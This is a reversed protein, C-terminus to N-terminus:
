QVKHLHGRRKLSKLEDEIWVGTLDDLAEVIQHEDGMKTCVMDGPGVEYENGESLVRARGDVIVWYEHCDHFHLDTGQGKPIKLVGFASFTLWDPKAEIQSPKIVPM